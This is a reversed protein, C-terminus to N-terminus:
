ILGSEILIERVTQPVEVDVGRMIQFTHGNVQVTEAPLQPQGPPKQRLRVQVKPQARLADATSKTIRQMEMDSLAKSVVKPRGDDTVEPAAPASPAVAPKQEDSKSNPMAEKFSSFSQALTLRGLALPQLLEGSGAIVGLCRARPPPDGAAPPHRGHLVGEM